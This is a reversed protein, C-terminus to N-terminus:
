DVTVEVGLASLREVLSEPHKCKLLRVVKMPSRKSIFSVLRDPIHIGEAGRFDVHTLTVQQLGHFSMSRCGGDPTSEVADNEEKHVGINGAELLRLLEYAATTEQLRLNRIEKRVLLPGMFVRFWADFQPNMSLHRSLSMTFAAFGGKAQFRINTAVLLREMISGVVDIQRQYCDMYKLHIDLKVVEEEFVQLYLQSPSLKLYISRNTASKSSTTHPQDSRLFGIVADLTPGVGVDHTEFRLVCSPPIILGRFISGCAFHAGRLELERLHPLPFANPLLSISSPEGGSFDDPVGEARICSALSLEQLNPFKRIATLWYSVPKSGWGHTAYLCTLTTMSHSPLPVSPGNLYLRRLKSPLAAPLSDRSWGENIDGFRSHSINCTVLDLDELDNLERLQRLLKRALYSDQVNAYLGRIRHGCLVLAVHEEKAGPPIFINIPRDRSRRLVEGIWYSGATLDVANCWMDPCELAIERWRHCVQALYRKTTCYKKILVPYKSAHPPLTGKM